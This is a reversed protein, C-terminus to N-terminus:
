EPNYYLFRLGDKTGLVFENQRASMPKISWTEPYKQDCEKCVTVSHKAISLALVQDKTAILAYGAIVPCIAQVSNGLKLKGLPTIEPVSYMSVENTSTGLLLQKLGGKSKVLAATSLQEIPLTAVHKPKCEAPSMESYDLLVHVQHIENVILITNYPEGPVSVVHIPM